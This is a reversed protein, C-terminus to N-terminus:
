VMGLWGLSRAAAVGNRWTDVSEQRVRVGGWGFVSPVIEGWFMPIGWTSFCLASLSEGVPCFERMAVALYTMYAFLVCSFGVMPQSRHREAGAGRWRVLAHKTVMLLMITM